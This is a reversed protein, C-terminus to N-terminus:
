QNPRGLKSLCPVLETCRQVLEAEEYTWSAGATMQWVGVQDTIEDIMADARKRLEAREAKDKEGKVKRLGHIELELEYWRRLLRTARRIDATSVNM